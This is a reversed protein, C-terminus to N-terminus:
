VKAGRAKPSTAVCLKARIHQLPAVFPGTGDFVVIGDLSLLSLKMLSVKRSCRGGVYAMARLRPFRRRPRALLLLWGRPLMLCASRDLPHPPGVDTCGCCRHPRNVGVETPLSALGEFPPKAPSSTRLWGPSSSNSEHRFSEVRDFSRGYSPFRVM